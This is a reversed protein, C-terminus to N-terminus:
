VRQKLPNIIDLPNDGDDASYWSAKLEMLRHNLLTYAASSTHGSQGAATAQGASLHNHNDHQQLLSQM